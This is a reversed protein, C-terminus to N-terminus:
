EEVLIPSLANLAAPELEMTEPFDSLKLSVNHVEVVQKLAEDFEANVEAIKDNAITITNPIANGDKDLAEVLNGLHDRTAYKTRIQTLMEDASKGFSELSRVATTVKWSLKIPLKEQSLKNLGQLVNLVQLNTLQM